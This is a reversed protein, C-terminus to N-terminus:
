YSLAAYDKTKNLFNHQERNQRFDHYNKEGEEFSIMRAAGIFQFISHCGLSSVRFLMM